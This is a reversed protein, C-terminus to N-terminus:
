HDGRRDPITRKRTCTDYRKRCCLNELSKFTFSGGRYRACATRRNERWHSSRGNSNAFRSVPVVVDAEAGVPVTVDLKLERAIIELGVVVAGHPTPVSGKAWTLDCFTPRSM